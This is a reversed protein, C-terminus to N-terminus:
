ENFAVGQPLKKKVREILRGLGVQDGASLFGAVKDAPL